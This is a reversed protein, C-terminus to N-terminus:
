LGINKTLKIERKIGYKEELKPVFYLIEELNIPSVGTLVFITKYYLLHFSLNKKREWRRFIINSKTM